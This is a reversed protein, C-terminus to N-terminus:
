FPFDESYDVEEDIKEIEPLKASLHVPNSQVYIAKYPITPCAYECAGCGVCIEEKVEPIKLNNKYPIM